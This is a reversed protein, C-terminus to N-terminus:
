CKPVGTMIQVKFNRDKALTIMNQTGKGGPFAIILDPQEIDLMQQNRIPGARNGNTKWDAVYEKNTIGNQIAWRKTLWDAGSCGGQIITINRGYYCKYFDLAANVKDQDTYNRGGCVLIKFHPIKVDSSPVNPENM